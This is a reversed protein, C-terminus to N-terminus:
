EDDGSDESDEESNEEVSGSVSMEVVRGDPGLFITFDFGRPLESDTLIELAELLLLARM